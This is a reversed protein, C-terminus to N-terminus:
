SAIWIIHFPEGAPNFAAAHDAQDLQNPDDHRMLSAKKDSKLIRGLAADVVTRDLDSLEKRLKALRVSENKRGGTLLLYATEIRKRLASASPPKPTAGPKREKGTAAKAKTTKGPRQEKTSPAKGQSTKGPKQERASAATKSSKGPSKREAAIPKPEDKEKPKAGIFAALTEDNKELFEALRALMEHLTLHAPPLEASLNGAAWNWGADSLSLYFGRGRKEVSILKASQLAERDAKTVAPMVNAQATEGHAALLGFLLLAQSPTPNFSM